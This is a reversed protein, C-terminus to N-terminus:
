YDIKRRLKKLEGRSKKLNLRKEISGKTPKTPKRKKPVFAAKELLDKLREIATERNQIQSRDEMVKIVIEGNSTVRHDSMKLLKNKVFVPLSSSEIDFRLVIASSTKNVHQGGPGSSRVASFEIETLEISFKRGQNNTITIM